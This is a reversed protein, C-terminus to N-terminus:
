LIKKVGLLLVSYKPATIKQKNIKKTHKIVPSLILKIKYPVRLINKNIKMSQKLFFNLYKSKNKIVVIKLKININLM